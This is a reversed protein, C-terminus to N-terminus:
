PSLSKNLLFNYVQKLSGRSPRADSHFSSLYVLCQRVDNKKICRNVADDKLYEGTSDFCSLLIALCVCVSIDEGDACFILLSQCTELKKRAFDVAAPLHNELSHRDFKSSHCLISVLIPLQIHNNGMDSIRSCSPDICEIICDVVNNNGCVAQGCEANSIALGTNGIWHFGSIHEPPQQTASHWIYNAGLEQQKVTSRDTRCEGAETHFEAHSSSDRTDYQHSTEIRYGDGDQLYCVYEDGMTKSGPFEVGVDKKAGDLVPMKNGTKKRLQPADQGRLARYVRDREVIQAVTCNCLEPGGSVLEDSHRWFLLPTLGRAWSEEDDAAGAIYSWSFEPDSMRRPSTLAESASVLIIPTFNWSSVDPVENLWIVTKQSVWLPRLPKKLVKALTSLDAGSARFSQVWKEVLREINNKETDSVWLPLHLSCDWELNNAHTLLSSSSDTSCSSNLVQQQGGDAAECSASSDELQIEQLPMTQMQQASVLPSQIERLEALARNLVCTWIPITKSM